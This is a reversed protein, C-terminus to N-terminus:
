QKLLFIYFGSSWLSWSTDVMRLTICSISASRAMAHYVVMTPGPLTTKNLQYIVALLVQQINSTKRIKSIGHQHFKPSTEQSIFRYFIPTGFKSCRWDAQPMGDLQFWWPPLSFFLLGMFCVHHFAMVQATYVYTYQTYQISRTTKNRALFTVSVKTGDVTLSVKMWGPAPPDLSWIQMVFQAAFHSLVIPNSPGFCSVSTVSPNKALGFRIM